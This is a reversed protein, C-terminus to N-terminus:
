FAGVALSEEIKTRVVADPGLDDMHGRARGCADTKVIYRAGQAAAVEVIVAEAVDHKAVPRPKGHVIHAVRQRPFQVDVVAIGLLVIGRDDGLHVYAMGIDSAAGKGERSRHHARVAGAGQTAGGTGNVPIGHTHIIPEPGILVAQQEESGALEEPIIFIRIDAISEHDLADIIGTQQALEEYIGLAVEGVIRGPLEVMKRWELLGAIRKRVLQAVASAAADGSGRHGDNDFPNIVLGLGIGVIQSRILPRRNGESSIEEKLIVSIGIGAIRKGDGADVVHVGQTPERIVAVAGIGIIGVTHEPIQRGTLGPRVHKLVEYAIGVAPETRGHDEDLYRRHDRTQLVPGEKVVAALARGVLKAVVRGRYQQHRERVFHEAATAVDSDGIRQAVRDYGGADVSPAAVRERDNELVGQRLFAGIGNGQVPRHAVSGAVGELVAVIEDQREEKIECGRDDRHIRQQGIIGARPQSTRDAVAVSDDLYGNGPGGIGSYRVAFTCPFQRGARDIRSQIPADIVHHGGRDIRGSIDSRVAGFCLQGQVPGRGHHSEDRQLGVVGRGHKRTGHIIGIGFHANIDDETPFHAGM